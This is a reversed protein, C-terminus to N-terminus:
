IASKSQSSERGKDTEPWFFAASGVYADIKQMDSNYLTYLYSVSDLDGTFQTLELNTTKNLISM